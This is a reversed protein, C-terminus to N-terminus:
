KEDQSHPFQDHGRVCSRAFCRASTSAFPSTSSSPSHFAHSTSDSESESEDPPHFSTGLSPDSMSSVSLSSSPLAFLRLFRLTTGTTSSSFTTWSITSSSSSLSLSASESSSSSSSSSSTLFSGMKRAVATVFSSSSSSILKARAFLSSFPVANASRAVVM